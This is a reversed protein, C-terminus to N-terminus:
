SVFGTIGILGLFAFSLSNPTATYIRIMALTLTARGSLNSSGVRQNSSLLVIRRLIKRNLVQESLLANLQWVLIHASTDPYTRRIMPDSCFDSCHM